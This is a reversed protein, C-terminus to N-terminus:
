IPHLAARLLGIVMLLSKSDSIWTIILDRSQSEIQPLLEYLDRRIHGSFRDIMCRHSMLWDKYSLPDDLTNTIKRCIWNSFSVSFLAYSDGHSVLLGRKELHGLAQESRTYLNQLLRLHFANGGSVKERHGLLALATLVIKEHDLSHQWYDEFHPTARQIYNKHWHPQRGMQINSTYAEFLFYCAMQLFYPHNGASAFITELECPTFQIGSGELSQRIMERTEAESFLPLHFNAFINFFPSSRIAESHCLETLDRRSSTILALNQHTALSRLGYFFGLDFAPNETVNEFSDLLFVVYLNREDIRHFFDTLIFSDVYETSRMEAISQKIEADCCAHAMQQLLHQWLHIPTAGHDLMQLDMSIFLYKNPALGYFQRVDPHALYNLLSTKGIHREGVLSSSEFEANRLRNFIQEVEYRRGAFHAPHSIPNDYTFPNQRM